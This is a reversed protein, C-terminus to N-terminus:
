GGNYEKDCDNFFSELGGEDDSKSKLNIRSRAVPTMGFEVAYKCMQEMAKNAISLYPSIIPYGSKKVTEISGNKKKTTKTTDGTKFILSGKSKLEREAEVWRGYAECYSALVARDLNTMMGLADLEKVVRYWEVRAVASLHQPCSPINLKPKPRNRNIRKKNRDGELIKLEDPKRPRGTIM